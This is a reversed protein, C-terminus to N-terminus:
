VPGALLKVKDDVGWIEIEDRVLKVDDKLKSACAVRVFPDDTGGKGKIEGKRTRETGRGEEIM